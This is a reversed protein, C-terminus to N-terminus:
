PADDATAHMDEAPRAQPHIGEHFLLNMATEFLGTKQKQKKITSVDLKSKTSVEGGERQHSLNVTASGRREFPPNDHFWTPAPTSSM